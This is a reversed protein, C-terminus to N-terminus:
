DVGRPGPPRGVPGPPEISFNLLRWAQLLGSRAEKELRLAPHQRKGLHDSIILGDKEVAARAECLRDYAELAVRLILSAPEDIAYCRFLLKWWKKSETSLHKPATQYSM